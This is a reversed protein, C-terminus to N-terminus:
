PASPAAKKENAAKLTSAYRERMESVFSDFVATDTTPKFTDGEKKGSVTLQNGDSANSFGQVKAAEKTPFIAGVEEFKGNEGLKLINLVGTPEKDEKFTSQKLRFPHAPVYSGDENQVKKWKGDAGKEEAAVAQFSVSGDEKKAAFFQAFIPQEDKKGIRLTVLTPDVTSEQKPTDPNMDPM